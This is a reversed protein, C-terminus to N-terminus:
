AARSPIISIHIAGPVGQGGISKIALDVDKLSFQHTTMLEIPYDSSSILEIATEVAQYSHGRAAKLTLRRANMENAPFNPIVGATAFVVMGSKKTCRIADTLTKEGGALDLAADVGKGGTLDFVKEILDEKEVDITDHAGLKRALELRSADRSLGSVLIQKAGLRKAAIV